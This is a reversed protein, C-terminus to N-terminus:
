ITAAPGDRKIVLVPLTRISLPKVKRDWGVRNSYCSETVESKQGRTPREMSKPPIMSTAVLPNYNGKTKKTTRM